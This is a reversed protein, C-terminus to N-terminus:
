IRPRLNPAGGPPAPSDTESRAPARPASAKAAPGAADEPATLFQYMGCMLLFFQDDESVGPEKRGGTRLHRRTPLRLLAPTPQAPRAFDVLHPRYVPRIGTWGTDPRREANWARNLAIRM